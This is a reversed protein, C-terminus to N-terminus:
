RPQGGYCQSLNGHLPTDTVTHTLSTLILGKKPGSFQRFYRVVSDAVHLLGLQGPLVVRTRVEFCAATHPLRSAHHYESKRM